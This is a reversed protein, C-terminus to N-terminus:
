GHDNPPRVVGGREVRESLGELVSGLREGPISTRSPAQQKAPLLNPRQAQQEANAVPRTGASSCAKNTSVAPVVSWRNSPPSGDALPIWTLAYYSPRRGTGRKCDVLGAREAEEIAATVFHAGVGFAYLQRHPALLFGNRKGAQRMHEIMLFDIFRRANIGLARWADSELLNRPMKVFQEGNV